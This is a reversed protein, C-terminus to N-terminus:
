ERENYDSICYRSVFIHPYYLLIICIVLVASYSIQIEPTVIIGSFPFSFSWPLALRRFSPYPCLFALAFDTPFPSIPPPDNPTPSTFYLLVLVLDLCKYFIYLISVPRSFHSSLFSLGLVLSFDGLILVISHIMAFVSWTM